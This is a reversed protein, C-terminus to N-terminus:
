LEARGKWAAIDTIGAPTTEGTDPRQLELSVRRRDGETVLLSSMARLWATMAAGKPPVHTMVTSEGITVPRPKLERSISEAILYATSWDSPEYFQSQGSEALSSFWRKAAPHWKSNAKPPTVAPAAPATTVQGGAPSNRRRRQTSRKPVPGPM